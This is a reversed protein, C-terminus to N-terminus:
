KTMTLDNNLVPMWTLAAFPIKAPQQVLIQLQPSIRKWLLECHPPQPGSSAFLCFFFAPSPQTKFVGKLACSKQNGQDFWFKSSLIRKQIQPRWENTSSTTYSHSKQRGTHEKHYRGSTHVLSHLGVTPPPGQRGLGQSEDALKLRHQPPMTDTGRSLIDQQSCKLFVQLYFIWRAALWAPIAAIRCTCLLLITLMKCSKINLVEAAVSRPHRVPSSSCKHLDGRRANEHWTM